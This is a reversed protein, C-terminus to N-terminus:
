VRGLRCETEGRGGGRRRGREDPEASPGQEVERDRENERERGKSKFVVTPRRSTFSTASQQSGRAHAISRSRSNSFSSRARSSEKSAGVPLVSRARSLLTFASCTARELPPSLRARPLYALPTRAGRSPTRRLTAARALQQSRTFLGLHALVPSRLSTSLPLFSRRLQWAPRSPPVLSLPSSTNSSLLDLRRLLLTESAFGRGYEVVLYIASWLRLSCHL